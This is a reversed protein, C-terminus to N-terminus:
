DRRMAIAESTTVDFVGLISKSMCAIVIGNSDRVVAGVGIMVQDTYVSADVNLKLEGFNPPSWKVSKQGIKSAPQTNFGLWCSQYAFLTRSAVSLIEKPGPWVNAFLGNNRSHWLAWLIGVFLELKEMNLCLCAEICLDQLSSTKVSRMFDHLSSAFWVSRSDSCDRLVHEITEVCHHCRSCLPSMSIGRKILQTACPLIGHFARWCFIKIKEPIRLKWLRRWWTSVVTSSSPGSSLQNQLALKYGSRVSYNGSKEYHWIIKDPPNSHSLPISLILDRDLPWFNQRVLQTNWQGESILDAVHHASILNSPTVPKFSFPRPLWPDSVININRGNGVRWRIGDRLLDRGWILSRWTYSPRSGVVAEFISAQPFYKAKFIRSVLSHPRDILRWVQKALLAQNFLELDRFGMGGLHKPRRLKDWCMWHIKRKDENGGWWFKSVLCQLDKCLSYPLKFISMTYTATAQAVAKILLERGGTSFLRSKWLNLKRQVGEKVGNFTRRKNRGMFAPLGLYKDHCSSDRALGLSNCVAIQTSEDVNPSFCISSKAFNIQQGSARAYLNIALHISDSDRKNARSFIIADDAFFLHSIRPAGRAATIGTLSNCRERGRILASLGEVCLLFLYPSLPCGQRLGREPIVKGFTAGNFRFSFRATSVCDMVIDIWKSGFGMKHMVGTLFKWEVRDYAKSLDLKLGMLGEKGRTKSRITHITEFAVLINDSILRGPIFASQEESILSSLARKLRNALTKTVVKYVVNCLSIPRYDAIRSPKTVKPILIINTDNYETISKGNNLTDLVVNVLDSGILDWNKQFFIPQFGDPGPAKTGGMSFLASKVEIDTFPADLDVAMEPSVRTTIFDTVLDIDQPSPWSSTFIDRFYMEIEKAILKEDSIWTGSSSEVGLIWNKRRRATAKQHFFKTNKDGGQLWSIRSRQRWYHEEVLMAKELQQNLAKIREFDMSSPSANNAKALESQVEAVRLNIHGFERKSWLKLAYGCRKLIESLSSLGSQKLSTWNSYLVDPFSESSMWVPEFRFAHSNKRMTHSQDLLFDSYLLIARHDSGYFDLHAVKFRDFLDFWERNGLFRDLREHVNTEPNLSKRWTFKPGCFGLDLLNCDDVAECFLSINADIIAAGGLKESAFMIENFDGGILWPLSFLSKLRRLLAWSLVRLSRDPNGYFGTFRWARGNSTIISDIFFRNIYKVSVDVEDKWFLALGGSRGVSDAFVGYNFGLLEKLRTTEASLANRTTTVTVDRRKPSSSELSGDFTVKRKVPTLSLPNCTGRGHSGHRAASKWNRKRQSTSKSTGVHFLVKSPSLSPLRRSSSIPTGKCSPSRPSHHGSTPSHGIDTEGIVSPMVGDGRRAPPIPNSQFGSCKESIGNNSSQPSSSERSPGTTFSSVVIVSTLFGRMNSSSGCEIETRAWDLPLGRRLPKTIDILVRVRLYPGICRGDTDSDVDIAVGLGDGIVRGINETMGFDPLNFVQVWLRTYSLDGIDGVNLGEFEKLIVLSRNYIWPELNLVRKIEREDNFIFFFMDPGIDMIELGGEVKWLRSIAMKFSQKNYPRQTLLRGVLGKRILSRGEDVLQDGVGIEEEEVDTLSLHRWRGVVEDM